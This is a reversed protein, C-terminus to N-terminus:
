LFTSLFLIETRRFPLAKRGGEKLARNENQSLFLFETSHNKAGEGETTVLIVCKKQLIRPFSSVFVSIVETRPVLNSEKVNENLYKTCVLSFCSINCM